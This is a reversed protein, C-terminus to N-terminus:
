QAGRRGDLADVVHANTYLRRRVEYHATDFIRGLMNPATACTHM